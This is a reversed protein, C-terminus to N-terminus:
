FPEMNEMEKEINQNQLSIRINSIVNPVMCLSWSQPSPGFIIVNGNDRYM